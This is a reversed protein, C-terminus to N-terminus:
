AKVKTIRQTAPQSCQADLSVAGMQHGLNGSVPAIPVHAAKPKAGGSRCRPREGDEGRGFPLVM